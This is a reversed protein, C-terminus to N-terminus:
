LEMEHKSPKTRRVPFFMWLKIELVLPGIIITLEKNEYGIGLAIAKTILRVDLYNNHILTKM